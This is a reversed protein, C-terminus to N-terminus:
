INVLFLGFGKRETEFRLSVVESYAAFRTRMCTHANKLQHGGKIYRLFSLFFIELNEM